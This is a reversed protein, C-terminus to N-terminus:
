EWPICVDLFSCLVRFSAVRTLGFRGGSNVGLQTDGGACVQATVARVKIRPRLGQYMREPHRADQELRAVRQDMSRLDEKIEKLSRGVNRESSKTTRGM